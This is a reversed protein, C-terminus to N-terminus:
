KRPKPAGGGRRPYPDNTGRDALHRNAERIVSLGADSCMWSGVDYFCARAPRSKFGCFSALVSGQRWKVSEGGASRCKAPLVVGWARGSGGRWKFYGTGTSLFPHGKNLGGPVGGGLGGPVSGGPISGLGGSSGPGGGRINCTAGSWGADCTCGHYDSWSTHKANYGPCPNSGEVIIMEANAMHSFGLIGFGLTAVMSLPAVIQAVRNNLLTKIKM